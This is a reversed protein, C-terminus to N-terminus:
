LPYSILRSSLRTIARQESTILMWGWGLSSLLGAPLNNTTRMSAPPPMPVVPIPSGLTQRIFREGLFWAQCVPGELLIWFRSTAWAGAYQDRVGALMTAWPEDAVATDFYRRYFTFTMDDRSQRRCRGDYQGSYSMIPPIEDVPEPALAGLSELLRRGARREHPFHLEYLWLTYRPWSWVLRLVLSSALDRPRETLISLTAGLLFMLFGKVYQEVEEPTELESEHFHEPFWNYRVMALRYLLPRAGLLYIWTRVWEGMDMDFPIPDGRVGLGTIMSFDYPTMTMEGASSLHFSNTTDWWREVLARLLARSVM